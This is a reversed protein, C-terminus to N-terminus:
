CVMKWKINISLDARVMFKLSNRLGGWKTILKM